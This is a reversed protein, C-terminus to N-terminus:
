TGTKSGVKEDEEEDDDEERKTQCWIRKEYLIDQDSCISREDIRGLHLM